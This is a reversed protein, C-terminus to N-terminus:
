SPGSVCQVGKAGAQFYDLTDSGIVIGGCGILDINLIVPKLSRLKGIEDALEKFRINPM